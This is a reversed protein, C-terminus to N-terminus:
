ALRIVAVIADALLAEVQKNDLGLKKPSTLENIIEAQPLVSEVVFGLKGFFEKVHDIDEFRWNLNNRDTITSLKQNFNSLNKDQNAAFKKPTVDCTIWVGGYKNLLYRVNLTVQKKEEFDLYRLLGENLIAIESNKNLYQEVREFTVSDLVNGSIAHFNSPINTITSLIDIKKDTVEPLDMEVYSMDENNETLNIGRTSYGSALEVVQKIKTEMLVKNILKFRAELEPALEKKILEESINNQNLQDFVEKAYPIDTLTRPYATLIATPIVSDFTKTNM